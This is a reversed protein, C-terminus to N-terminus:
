RENDEGKLAKNVIDLIDQEEKTFVIRITDERQSFTSKEYSAKDKEIYEKIDVLAQKYIRRQIRRKQSKSIYTKKSMIKM